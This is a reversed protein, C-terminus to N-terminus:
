SGSAKFVQKVFHSALSTFAVDRVSTQGEVRKGGAMEDLVRPMVLFVSDFSTFLKAAGVLWTNRDREPVRHLTRQLFNKAWESKSIALYSDVGKGVFNIAQARGSFSYVQWLPDGDGDVSMEIVRATIQVAKDEGVHSCLWHAVEAVSVCLLEQCVTTQKQLVEDSVFRDFFRGRKPRCRFGLAQWTWEDMIPRVILNFAIRVLEKASISESEEIV